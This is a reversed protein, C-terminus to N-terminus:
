GQLPQMVAGQKVTVFHHICGTVSPTLDEGAVPEVEGLLLVGALAISAPEPVPTYEYQLTVNGSEVPM